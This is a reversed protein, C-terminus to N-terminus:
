TVVWDGEAVQRDITLHLDPYTQRVGLVHRRAGDIGVPYRAGRYVEVYEPSIFEAIRDVDGTNVVEELYHRVVLKTQEGTV